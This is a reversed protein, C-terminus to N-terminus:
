DIIAATPSAERGAQERCKEYLAYHIRDLTGDYGWLCFYRYVTSRPPLDKPIYRWQCGTSLVYMIGDVVDRPDVERKRGGRKAPPILARYTGMRRGDCRESIAFSRAQLAGPEQEDVDAARRAPLGHTFCLHNM